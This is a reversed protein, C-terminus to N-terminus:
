KITIRFLKKYVEEIRYYKELYNKVYKSPRYYFIAQGSNINNKIYDFCKVTEITDGKRYHRSNLSGEYVNVRAGEKLIDQICLLPPFYHWSSFIVANDPAISLVQRGEGLILTDKKFISSKVSFSFLLIFMIQFTIIFVVVSPVIIKNLRDTSVKNLGLAMFIAIVIYSLTPKNYYAASMYYTFFAFNICLFFFLLLAFNNKRKLEFIFGRFAYFIGIGAFSFVFLFNHFLIRKLLAPATPLIMVRKEATMYIIFNKINEPNYETGIAPLVRSRICIYLFPIAAGLIIALVILSIKKLYRRESEMAVFFLLPILMLINSFHIGLSLGYIFGSILFTRLDRRKSWAYFLYLILVIFFSNVSYVESRTSFKLIIPVFSYVMVSGIAARVSIGLKLMFLYLIVLTFSSFVVSVLNMTYLANNTFILFLSGIWIYVPRGGPHGIGCRFAQILFEDGDGGVLSPSMGLIYVLIPILLFFAAKVEIRAFEQKVM